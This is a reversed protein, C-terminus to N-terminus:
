HEAERQPGGVLEAVTSVHEKVLLIDGSRLEVRSHPRGTHEFSAVSEFSVVETALVERACVSHDEVVRDVAFSAWPKIKTEVVHFTVFRSM